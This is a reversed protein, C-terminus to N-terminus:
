ALPYGLRHAVPSLTTFAEALPEAYTRWHGAPFRDPGQPAHPLSPLEVSLAEGTARAIAAPDNAIDDLRIIAHPFLADQHLQAVQGLARAMWQAAAEPSPLAFPVPGGFALWDLLMDRPDRLAVLLRGEPLHPRLALLLANDWWLLWDIIRGDKVGRAAHTARWQRVLFHPDLSGDVLAEATGYRQIPDGPPNAGLRDALLPMRANDLTLAVREVLSGPAGWLFATGPAQEPRPGIDPLSPLRATQAPLPLRQPVAEAHLEAWTAAAADPQGAADFTRGLVQRLMRKINDDTARALLSEVREVAADPETRMLGDIVRMEASAHGPRLETIRLAIADAEALEGKQQHITARAELAPVFDPMAALWREVVGAAEDSAFPEFLLRAYWLEPQGPHQELLPELTARAEDSQGTRRWAESVARLTRPDTPQGLLAERLLERAAEDRGAELEFEGILRRLAPTASPDDLLPRLEDAAEGPRGQRRVLDAIMARLPNGPQQELLKRFAQEAFALHGKAVYAFGLAHRLIPEDPYQGSAKSLVALARDPDGQRLALSGEVAAVQPHDPAIRAATKVLREAQEYDGRGTALQAQLIYAPFQNPDLGTTRALAAQAEDLQRGDLLLGARELHLAAEDPALAIAADIAAMAADRDGAQRLAASLLRQAQADQPQSEILARAATAAEASAGRRLADIIADYM